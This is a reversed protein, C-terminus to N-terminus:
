FTYLLCTLDPAVTIWYDVIGSAKPELSCTLGIISDVSGHEISNGELKGDVADQYTGEKGEIGFLGINYETFQQYDHSANVLFTVDGKYHVIARVRPDFFGTDGRRSEFIRFQQGLFLKVERKEERLNNITFRRLFINEESHVADTSLLEIGLSDRICM